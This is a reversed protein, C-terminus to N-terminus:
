PAWTITGTATNTTGTAGYSWVPTENRLLIDSTSIGKTYPLYVLAIQHEHLFDRDIGLQNLYSEGMWDDGHVLYRPRVKLIAPKSDAGGENKVVETVYKCAKLMEWRETYSFVPKRKYSASFEDTNLSVWVDGMQAARQLLRLHGPHLLDFTGGVYVRRM